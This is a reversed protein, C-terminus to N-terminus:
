EVIARLGVGTLIPLDSRLASLTERYISRIKHPLKDYGDIEIRGVHRPPYIREIARVVRCDTEPDVYSRGGGSHRFSISDCGQCEIIQYYDWDGTSGGEWEYESTYEVSSLVKHNTWRNCQLCLYQYVTGIRDAKPEPRNQKAM